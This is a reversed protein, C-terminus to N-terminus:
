GTSLIQVIASLSVVALSRFFDDSAASKLKLPLQDDYQDRVQPMMNPLPWRVLVCDTGPTRYGRTVARVGSFPFGPQGHYDRYWNPFHLMLRELAKQSFQDALCPTFFYDCHVLLNQNLKGFSPSLDMVVYEAKVRYAARWICHWVMGSVHKCTLFINIENHLCLM